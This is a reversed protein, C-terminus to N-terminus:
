ACRKFILIISTSRDYSLLSPIQFFFCYSIGLEQSLEYIASSSIAERTIAFVLVFFRLPNHGSRRLHSVSCNKKDRHGMAFWVHTAHIYTQGHWHHCSYCLGQSLPSNQKGALGRFEWDGPPYPMCYCLPMFGGYQDSIAIDLYPRFVEMCRFLTSLYVANNFSSSGTPPNQTLLSQFSLSGPSCLFM